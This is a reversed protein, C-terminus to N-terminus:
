QAISRPITLVQRNAPSRRIPRVPNSGTVKPNFTRSSGSCCVTRLQFQRCRGRTSASASQLSSCTASVLGYEWEYERGDDSLVVWTLDPTHRFESADRRGSGRGAAAFAGALQGAKGFRASRSEGQPVRLLTHRPPARDVRLRCGSPSRIANCSGRSARQRVQVTSGEKGHPEWATSAPVAPPRGQTAEFSSTVVM